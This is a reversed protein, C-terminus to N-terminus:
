VISETLNVTSFSSMNERFRHLGFKPDFKTSSRSDPAPDPFTHFTPDASSGSEPTL